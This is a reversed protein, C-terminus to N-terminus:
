MSSAIINNIFDERCMYQPFRGSVDIDCNKEWEGITVPHKLEYVKGDLSFAWVGTITYVWLKVDEVYKWGWHWQEIRVAKRGEEM